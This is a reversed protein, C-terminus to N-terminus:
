KKINKVAVRATKVEPFNYGKRPDQWESPVEGKLKEVLPKIAVLLPESIKDMKLNQDADGSYMSLTTEGFYSKVKEPTPFKKSVPFFDLGALKLAWAILYRLNFSTDGYVKKINKFSLGTAESDKQRKLLEDIAKQASGPNWPGAESEDIRDTFSNFYLLNKM